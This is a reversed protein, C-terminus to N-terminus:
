ELSDVPSSYLFDVFEEGGSEDRQHWDRLYHLYLQFKEDSPEPKGVTVAVNQNKRWVRRQSKSMRFAHTLVRLSRCERCGACIPQYIINGSRRFNADMFARYTEAPLRRTLLARMTAMRGPLYACDHPPSEWLQAQLPPPIAPYHSLIQLPIPNM